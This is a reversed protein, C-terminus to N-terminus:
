EEEGGTEKNYHLNLHWSSETVQYLLKLAEERKDERYTVLLADEEMSFLDTKEEPIVEIQKEPLFFQLTDAYENWDSHLLYLRREPDKEQLQRITAAIQRDGSNDAQHPLINTRIIQVAMGLYVVALVSLAAFRVKKRQVGTVLWVLLLIGASGALYPANLIQRIQEPRQGAACAIGIAFDPLYDTVGKTQVYWGVAGMLAGHLVLIYVAKRWLGTERLMEVLGLCICLPMLTENYRGYLIADIRGNGMLGVASILFHFVVALLLFAWFGDEAFVASGNRERIAKWLEQFFRKARKWVFFLAFYFLGFSTNGLYFLKGACSITLDLCGSFTLLRSLKGFQGGYDNVSMIALATDGYVAAQMWRKGVEAGAFIMISLLLFIWASQKTCNQRTQEEENKEEETGSKQVMRGSCFVNALIVIGLAAWIGVSRMHVLYMVGAALALLVANKRGPNEQYCLLRWVIILFMLNLLVESLTYQMYVLVSPYFAGILSILVLRKEEAKAFLRRLIRGLLMGHFLALLINVAIAIRYAVTMTEAIPLLGTKQLAEVVRLIPALLLSYGFAYYPNLANVGTWDHGTMAAANTWYGYEDPPFIIGQMKPLVCVASVMCVLCLIRKYWNWAGAKM